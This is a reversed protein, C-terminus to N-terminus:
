KHSGQQFNLEVAALLQLRFAVLSRRGAVRDATTSLDIQRNYRLQLLLLSNVMGDMVAVLFIVM